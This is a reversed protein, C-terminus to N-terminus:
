SDPSPAGASMSARFWFIVWRSCCAASRRSWSPSRSWSRFAARAALRSSMVCSLWVAVVVRRYCAPVVGTACPLTKVMLRQAACVRHVSRRERRPGRSFGGTALYSRIACFTEAGTMSRMCGSVKIRLKSMRIVQEARIHGRSPTENRDAITRDRQHRLRPSPISRPSSPQGACVVPGGGWRAGEASSPGIRSARASGPCCSCCWITGTNVPFRNVPKADLKAGAADGRNRRLGEGHGGWRCALGAVSDAVWVLNGHVAGRGMDVLNSGTGRKRLKVM